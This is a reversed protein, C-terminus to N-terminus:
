NIPLEKEPEDFINFLERFLGPALVSLPNTSIDPENINGTMKYNAAFIGGDKEGGSFIKGIIPIRTLATNFLYYPVITGKLEIIETSNDINGTATMGLSLGSVSADKITIIKDKSEFPADLKAFGMGVGGLLEDVIGTISAVNLLKALIPAKILRFDDIRARGSFKSDPTMGDYEGRLSLKGGMLNDYYDFTKLILGADKASIYLYRKGNKPVLSVDLIKNEGRGSKLRIQNWVFGDYVIVGNVDPLRKNPYLQIADINLSLTVPDGKLKNSPMDDSDLWDILDLQKGSVHINWGTDRAKSHPAIIAEVDTQGFQLRSIIAQDLDGNKKFSVKANLTLGGGKYAVKPISRFKNESFVGIISAIAPVKEPKYWGMRPLTIVTDKLDLQAQLEGLGDENVLILLDVGILGRTYTKNFPPFDLKLKERWSNEDVVSKINYKRRYPKGSIFNEFWEIDTKVGALLGSGRISMNENNANLVLDANTLDLDLAVKSADVDKLLAELSFQMKDLNIVEELLFNLKIKLNTNGTIVSSNFGTSYIFRFPEKDAIKAVTELPGDIELEVDVNQDKDDLGSFIVQGNKLLLDGSRAGTIIVNARKHNFNVKGKVQTAMPIGRFYDITVNDYDLVGLISSFEVGDRKTYNGTLNVKAATILGKKLNKIIWTRTDIALEKPWITSIKDISVEGAEADLEFSIAHDFKQITASATLAINKAFLDIKEMNLRKFDFDYSGSLSVKGSIWEHDFPAPLSIADKQALKLTLNGIELRGLTKNYEGVFNMGELLVGTPVPDKFAIEGKSSTLNFQVSEISGGGLVILDISGSLPLDFSELLKLKKSVPSFVIPNLDSFGIKVRAEKKELNYDGSLNVNATKDVLKNTSKLVLEASAYVNNKRRILTMVTDPALWKVELERDDISVNANIIDIRQLYGFPRRVDIPSFLEGIISAVLDGNEPEQSPNSDIYQVLGLEMRGFENRVINLSPGFITISRPALQGKLLASGSLTIDLQPIEAIVKGNPAVAKIGRLKIGLNKDKGVWTLITDQLKIKFNNDSVKFSEEFYPTLYSLSIPGSTLRWFIVAFLVSFGLGIVFVM